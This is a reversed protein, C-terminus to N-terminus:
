YKASQLSVKVSSLYFHRGSSFFRENKDNIVQTGLESTDPFFERKIKFACLNHTDKYPMTSRVSVHRETRPIVLFASIRILYLAVSQFIIFSCVFTFTPSYM